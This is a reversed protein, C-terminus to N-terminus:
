PQNRDRVYPRLVLKPLFRIPRCNIHKIRRRHDCVQSSLRASRDYLSAQCGCAVYAKAMSNVQALDVIIVQASIVQVCCYLCVIVQDANAKNNAFVRSIANQRSTPSSLTLGPLSENASQQPRVSARLSLPVNRVESWWSSSRMAPVPTALMWNMRYNQCGATDAAAAYNDPDAGM